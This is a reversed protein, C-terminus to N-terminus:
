RTHIESTRVTFRVKTTVMRYFSIVDPSFLDKSPQFKRDYGHSKQFLTKALQSNGRQYAIAGLLFQAMGFESKPCSSDNIADSLIKTAQDWDLERYAQVARAVPLITQDSSSRHTATHLPRRVAHTYSSTQRRVPPNSVSYKLPTQKVSEDGYGMHAYLVSGVVTSCLLTSVACGSSLGLSMFLFSTCM